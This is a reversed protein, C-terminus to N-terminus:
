KRMRRYEQEWKYVERGIPEALDIPLKMLYNGMDAWIAKCISPVIAYRTRTSLEVLSCYGFKHVLKCPVRRHKDRALWVDREWSAPKTMGMIPIHRLEAYYKM